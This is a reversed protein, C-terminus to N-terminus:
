AGNATITFSTIAVSQGSTWVVGPSINLDAGSTGVTGQAVVTTGAASTAIRWYGATGSNAANTTTIASMTLVGATVTGITASMPLSVLLTGSATTSCHAPASGSYILLYATGGALSVISTVNATQQTVSYQIAGFCPNVLSAICLLALLIRKM